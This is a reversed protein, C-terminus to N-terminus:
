QNGIATRRRATMLMVLGFAIEIAACSFISILSSANLTFLLYAAIGLGIGLAWYLRLGYVTAFVLYRGGIILLMGQFFWEVKQFSLGYALPICMIMFITGEMALRGLPNGPAHTGRAGLVKNLLMSVPHILVGGVLLPWVAKDPSVYLAVLATMLWVMGSVLVGSYGHLYAARMDQQADKLNQLDQVTGETVQDTNVLTTKNMQNLM